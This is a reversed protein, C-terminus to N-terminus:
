LRRDALVPFSSRARAVVGPDIEVSLVHEGDGAEALIEGTPAVVMSHGGMEFGAHTGGTNCAIVICQDEAARAQAMMRWAEVRKMPWAAPVVFVEAGRDLLLRFMEPFRLDYCTALGARLSSGEGAPLDLITLEEGADIHAPEGEAFGFRHIKRYTAALEGQPTFVLSTNWMGRGDSGTEGDSPREIISGAHLTVGAERAAAAMAQAIPGDVPQAADDWRTYDFGTAGWLEPLVVLDHGAQARVLAAARETRAEITEEDGYALQILAVRM